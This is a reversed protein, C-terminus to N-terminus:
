AGGALTTEANDAAATMEAVALITEKMPMEITGTHITIQPPPNNYQRGFRFLISPLAGGTGMAACPNSKLSDDQLSLSYCGVVSRM